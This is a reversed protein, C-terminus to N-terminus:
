IGTVLLALTSHSNAPHREPSHIELKDAAGFLRWQTSNFLAFFLARRSTRVIDTRMSHTRIGDAIQRWLRHAALRSQAKAWRLVTRFDSFKSPSVYRQMPRRNPASGGPGERGSTCIGQRVRAFRGRFLLSVLRFCATRHARLALSNTRLEIRCPMPISGAHPPAALPANVQECEIKFTQM